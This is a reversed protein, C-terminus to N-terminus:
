TYDRDFSAVTTADETSGTQTSFHIIGSTDTYPSADTMTSTEENVTVEDEITWYDEIDDTTTEFGDTTPTSLEIEIDSTHIMSTQTSVDGDQESTFYVTADVTTNTDITTKDHDTSVAITTVYEDNVLSSTIEDITSTDTVKVEETTFYETTSYTYLYSVTDTFETTSYDSTGTTAETDETFSTGTSVDSIETDSQLIDTSWEGNTDLTSYQFTGTTQYQTTVDVEGSEQSTYETAFDTHSSTKGTDTVTQYEETSEYDQTTLDLDGSSDTFMPEGTTTFDTTIREESYTKLHTVESTTSEILEEESATVSFNTTETYPKTVSEAVSSTISTGSIDDAVTTTDNQETLDQTSGEYSLTTELESYSRESETTESEFYITSETDGSFADTISEVVTSSFEGSSIGDSTADSVAVDPYTTLEMDGSIDESEESVSITFSTDPTSTPVDTSKKISTDTMTFEFETSPNSENFPSTTKVFVFDTQSTISTLESLGTLDGVITSTREIQTTSEFEGSFTTQTEATSSMDSGDTIDKEDGNTKYTELETTFEYDELTQLTETAGIIITQSRSDTTKLEDSDTVMNTVDIRSTWDTELDATVESDGSYSVSQRETFHNTTYKSNSDNTIIEAEDSGTTASTNSTSTFENVTGTTSINTKYDESTLSYTSLTYEEPLSVVPETTFIQSGTDSVTGMVDGSTDEETYHLEISTSMIETTMDDELKDSTPMGDNDDVTSEALSFVTSIDNESSVIWRDTTMESSMEDGSSMFITAEETVTEITNTESASSPEATSIIKVNSATTSVTIFDEDETDAVTVVVSSIDHFSVTPTVDNDADETVESETNEKAHNSTPAELTTGDHPKNKSTETSSTLQIPIITSSLEDM